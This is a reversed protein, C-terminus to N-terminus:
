SAWRLLFMSFHKDEVFEFTTMGFMSRMSWLGGDAPRPRWGGKGINAYCWQEMADNLHYRDKDFTIQHNM